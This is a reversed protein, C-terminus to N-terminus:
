RALLAAAGQWLGYIGFCFITVGALTKWRRQQFKTLIRSTAVSLILLNPLTGLGFALMVLAGEQASATALASIAATYVLGCPLWGWVAGVAIAQWPQRIPLLQRVLPQLYRWVPSGLRELHIILPSIGAVYLGLGILILNAVIHLIGQVLPLQGLLGSASGLMGALAGVTAYSGIRGVNYLIRNLWLPQQPDSPLSLASVIGGCMAMCHGGGLLGAIFLSALSYDLL